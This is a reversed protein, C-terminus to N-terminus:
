IKLYPITLIGLKLKVFLMKTINVGVVNLMTAFAAGVLGFFYTFLVTLVVTTFMFIISIKSQVKEYGTMILIVGSAGTAINVFQGLSLLVLILYADEFENGWLGLILKGAIIYFFLSILGIVGLGKTVRQVMKEIDKIKGEEFLAAVKPSVTSNSIQLFISTLMAVRAAVSYLGVDNSNLFWGIIIGDVMGIVVLALSNMYLPFSIHLLSRIKLSGIIGYPFVKRWYITMTITVVLRGIAYAFAVVNITLTNRILYFIFLFVLTVGISLTQDVLNSQWIKRKGILGSSIIRSVMQPTMAAFALILPFTLLPENFFHKSIYPSLIIGITSVLLAIIGNVTFGTFMADKVRNYDKKNFGIATEKTLVQRIGVFSLVILLNIVRRTIEIIGIGNAGITRGLFVSLILQFLVGLSKVITSSFSKKAVEKTHRDLGVLKKWISNDKYFNM